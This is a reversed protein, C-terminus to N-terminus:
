HLVFLFFEYDPAHNHGGGDGGHILRTLAVQGRLDESTETLKAKLDGTSAHQRRKPRPVQKGDVASLEGLNRPSIDHEKEALATKEDVPSQTYRGIVQERPAVPKGSGIRRNAGVFKQPTHNGDGAMAGQTTRSWQAGEAPEKSKPHTTAGQEVFDKQTEM